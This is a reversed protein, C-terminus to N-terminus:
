SPRSPNSDRRLGANAGVRAVPYGFRLLGPMALLTVVIRDTRTLRSRWEDDLRLRVPGSEFRSPNGTLTHSGGLHVEGATMSPLRVDDEGVIHAIRVLSERPGEILDEYRLRLSRAPGERTLVLEALLTQKMWDSTAHFPGWVPTEVPRDRDPVLKRRRWSFAVARADRVLHVFFPDVMPLARLFAGNQPRKSSDVILRAGTVDAVARYLASVADTWESVGPRSRLQRGDLVSRMRQARVVQSQLVEMRGPDIGAVGPASAVRSWVPCEAISLGCGCRRDPVASLRWFHRLEGVHHFQDVENLLNGLLTSGSRGAGLIYLVKVLVLAESSLEIRVVDTCCIGRRWVRIYASGSTLGDDRQGLARSWM